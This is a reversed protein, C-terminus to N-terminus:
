APKYSHKPKQNGFIGQFNNKLFGLMLQTLIQLVAVYLLFAASVLCLLWVERPLYNKLYLIFM